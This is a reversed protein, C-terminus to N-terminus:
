QGRAVSPTAIEAEPTLGRVPWVGALIQWLALLM